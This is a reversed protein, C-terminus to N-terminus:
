REHGHGGCDDGDNVTLRGSLFSQNENPAGTRCDLPCPAATGQGTEQLGHLRTKIQQSYPHVWGCLILM